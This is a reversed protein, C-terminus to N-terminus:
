KSIDDTNPILKNIKMNVEKYLIYLQECDVLEQNSIHEWLRCRAEIDAELIDDVILDHIKNRLLLHDAHTWENMIYNIDIGPLHMNKM